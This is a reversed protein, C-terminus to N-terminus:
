ETGGSVVASRGLGRARYAADLEAFRRASARAGEAYDQPCEVYPPRCPGGSIYDAANIRIKELQINYRSFLAFSGEPFFGVSAAGLDSAVERAGELDGSLLRQRLEVHPTPGCSASGSWCALVDDPALEYATAWDRDVPLLRM